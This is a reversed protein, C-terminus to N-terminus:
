KNKQGDAFIPMLSASYGEPLSAIKAKLRSKRKYVTEIKEELLLAIARNSFGCALYIALAYEEPKIEPFARRLTDMIGDRGDNAIRELSALTASDGRLAEIEQKVQGVIANKEAKTGQSEYYTNCLRDLVEFRSGFLNDISSRLSSNVNVLGRLAETEALLTETQARKVRLRACLRIIVVTAVLLLILSLCVVRSKEQREKYLTYEKVKQLYRASLLRDSSSNGAGAAMADRLAEARRFSVDDGHRRYYDVAINVITDSPAVLRNRNLADSYLLAWRAISASDSLESVDMATLRELADSPATDLEKQALDLENRYTNGVSCATAVVLILMYFLARMAHHIFNENRSLVFNSFNIWEKVDKKRLM